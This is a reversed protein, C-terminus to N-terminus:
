MPSDGTTSRSERSENSIATVTKLLYELTLLHRWQPFSPANGSVHSEALFGKLAQEDLVAALRMKKPDLLRQIEPDCELRSQSTAAPPALSSATRVLRQLVKGGYHPLIRWFRFVNHCTVPVAPYGLELRINAFTPHQQALMKRIMLSRTRLSSKAQLITELSSRIMFPSLCPWLQNTSRAISGQWCQMRMYIYAHDLQFTNPFEELGANTRQIVEAMHEPLPIRLDRTYLSPPNPAAYRKRAILLADLKTRKGTSPLLLEWWYGRALEGYSGNVSIDLDRAMRKHLSLVRAYEVLDYSGDTFRFAEDLDTMSQATESQLHQHPLGAAKALQAAIIVDPSDPPGSVTTAFPVGAASFAAVVARSDYGGTLDCIPRPFSRVIQKASRVLSEWLSQVAVYNPISEPVLKKADWYRQATAGSASIRHISAPSLKRVERFFTRDEYMIGTQLFEQCAIHDLQWPALVALLVPSSAVAIGEPIHRIYCHCSGALDTVVTAERMKPDSVVITFFGQLQNVVEPVSTTLFQQLLRQEDGPGMAQGYFWTGVTLLLAGSDADQVLV